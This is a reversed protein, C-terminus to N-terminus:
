LTLSNMQNYVHGTDKQKRRYRQQFRLLIAKETRGDTQVFSVVRSGSFPNEHTKINRLNIEPNLSTRALIHSTYGSVERTSNRVNTRENPVESARLQGCTCRLASTQATFQPCRFAFTKHGTSHV